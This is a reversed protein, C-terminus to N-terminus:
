QWGDGTTPYVKHPNERRGNAGRDSFDVGNQAVVSSCILIVLV